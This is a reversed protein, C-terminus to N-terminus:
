IEQKKTRIFDENNYLCDPIYLDIYGIIRMYCYARIDNTKMIELKKENLINTPLNMIKEYLEIYHKGKM